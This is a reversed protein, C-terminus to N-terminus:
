WQCLKNQGNNDIITSSTNIQQSNELRYEPIVILDTNETNQHFQM